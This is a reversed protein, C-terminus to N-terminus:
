SRDGMDLDHVWEGNDDNWIDKDDRNREFCDKCGKKYEKHNFCPYNELKPKNFKLEMKEGEKNM